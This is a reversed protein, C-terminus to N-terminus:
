RASVVPQWARDASAKADGSEWAADFTSADRDRDVEFWICASREDADISWRDSLAEVLRLDELLLGDELTGSLEVPACVLERAGRLEVRAVDERIWVRLEVLDRSDRPRLRVARSVLESTLLVVSERLEPPPPEITTVCYRAARPARSDPCISIALDPPPLESTMDRDSQGEGSSEFTHPRGSSSSEASAGTPGVLSPQVHTRSPDRWARCPPSVRAQRVSEM